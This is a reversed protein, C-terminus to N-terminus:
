EDRAAEAQLEGLRKDTLVDGVRKGTPISQAVLRLWRAKWSMDVSQADYFRTAEAVEERTAEALKMGGPLPFALLNGAAMQVIRYAGHVRSRVLKDTPPTWVKRREQRCAATVASYCATAVLPELLADRLARNGRVARELAKTAVRVDGDAEALAKRAADAVPDPELKRLASM